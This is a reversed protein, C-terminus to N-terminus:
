VFFDASLKQAEDGQKKDGTVKVGFKEELWENDVEKYPMLGTAFKFLQEVDENPDFEFSIDGSLWGIKLLAPIVVANWQQEVKEMDSQVLQWLLDQASEDKSRNGNKTDQGIIAGSIAMSIENNCLTILESYVEGKTSVSNAWEFSENSDIIFWAASGMQQMMTKARNLMNTDRTNTKMVRPPIGYIECLESWCSQAFRKMLVHPVVKNLLGLEESGAFELIYKGFEPLERYKVPNKEESYNRYFTGTQPIINTRPLVICKLNDKDGNLEILSYWLNEADLIANTIDRYLASKKLKATQEKDVEGNTKKLAFSATFLQQKRNQIQSHLLADNAVQGLLLQLSFTKPEEALASSEANTWSKIDSRMRSVSQLDWPLMRGAMQKKFDEQAGLRAIRPKKRSM